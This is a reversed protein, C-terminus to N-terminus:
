ATRSSARPITPQKKGQKRGIGNGSRWLAQMKHFMAVPDSKRPIKKDQKAPTNARPPDPNEWTLSDPDRTHPRPASPDRPQHLRAPCRVALPFTNKSIYKMVAYELDHIDQELQHVRADASTPDVHARTRSQDTGDPADPADITRGGGDGVPSTADVDTESDAATESMASDAIYDLFAEIKKSSLKYGSDWLKARLRQVLDEDGQKSKPAGYAIM